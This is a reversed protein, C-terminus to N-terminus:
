VRNGEVVVVVVDSADARMIIYGPCSLLGGVIFVLVVEASVGSYGRAFLDRAKRQHSYGGACNSADRSMRGGGLQDIEQKAKGFDNGDVILVVVGSAGGTIIIYGIYIWPLVIDRWRSVVDVVEASVGSYGYRRAFLDSAEIQDYHGRFCSSARGSM